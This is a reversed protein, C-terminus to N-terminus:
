EIGIGREQNHSCMSLLYSIKSARSHALWPGVAAIELVVLGSIGAAM